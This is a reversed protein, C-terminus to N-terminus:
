HLQARKAGKRKTAALDPASPANELAEWLESRSTFDCLRMLGDLIAESPYWDKPASGPRKWPSRNMIRNVSAVSLRMKRAIASHNLRKAIRFQKRAKCYDYILNRVMSIQDAM